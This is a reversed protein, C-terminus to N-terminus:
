SWSNPHFTTWSNIHTKIWVHCLTFVEFLTKIICTIAIIRHYTCISLSIAKTFLWNGILTKNSVHGNRVTTWAEVQLSKWWHRQKLIQSSFSGTEGCTWYQHLVSTSQECSWWCRQTRRHVGSRAQLRSGPWSTLSDANGCSLHEM